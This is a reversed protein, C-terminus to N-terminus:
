QHNSKGFVYTIWYFLASTIKYRYCLLYSPCSYYPPSITLSLGNFSPVFFFCSSFIQNVLYWWFKVTKNFSNWKLSLICNQFDVNAALQVNEMLQPNGYAEVQSSTHFRSIMIHIGNCTVDSIMRVIIYTQSLFSLRFQCLCWKDFYRM